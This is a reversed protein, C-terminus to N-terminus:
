LQRLPFLLAFPLVNFYNHAIFVKLLATTFYNRPFLSYLPNHGFYTITSVKISSYLSLVNRCPQIICWLMAHSTLSRKLAKLLIIACVGAHTRNDDMVKLHLCCLVWLPLCHPTCWVRPIQFSHQKTSLKKAPQICPMYSVEQCRIPKVYM